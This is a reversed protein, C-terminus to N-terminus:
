LRTPLMIPVTESRGSFRPPYHNTSYSLRGQNPGSVGFKRVALFTSSFPSSLFCRTILRKRFYGFLRPIIRICSRHPTSVVAGFTPRSLTSGLALFRYKNKRFSPFEPLLASSTRRLPCELVKGHFSFLLALQVYPCHQPGMLPSLAKQLPASSHTTVM